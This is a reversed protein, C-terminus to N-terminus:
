RNAQLIEGTVTINKVKISLAQDFPVSSDILHNLSM